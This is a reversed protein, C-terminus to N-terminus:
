RRKLQYFITLHYKLHNDNLYIFSIYFQYHSRYAIKFISNSINLKYSLYYIIIDLVLLIYIWTVIIVICIINVVIVIVMIAVM